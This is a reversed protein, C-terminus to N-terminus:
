QRGLDDFPSASVREFRMFWDSKWNKGADTSFAQEWTVLDDSVRRWTGRALVTRGDREEPAEFSAAGDVFRGHQPVNLVGSRASVWADSWTRRERDFTRMAGGFPEGRADRLEEVSVLGDLLTFFRAQGQWEFWAEDRANADKLQRHHVRWRGQLFAFSEADSPRSGAAPVASAAANATATASAPSTMAFLAGLVLIVPRFPNFRPLDPM